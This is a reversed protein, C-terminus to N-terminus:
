PTETHWEIATRTPPSSSASHLGGVPSMRRLCHNDTDAVLISGDWCCAVGTPNNFLAASGSGDAHGAIGLTGALTTVNGDPSIMRVANNQSDALVINGESDLAIGRPHNFKAAAGRGDRLGMRTTAHQGALLEPLGGSDEGAAAADVVYVASRTAVLLMGERTVAVSWVHGFSAIFDLSTVTSRSM